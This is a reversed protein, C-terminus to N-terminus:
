VLRKLYIVLPLFSFQGIGTQAIQKIKLFGYGFHDNGGFNDSFIGRGPKLRNDNILAPGIPQGPPQRHNHRLTDGTLYDLNRIM